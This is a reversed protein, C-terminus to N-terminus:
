RPPNADTGVRRAEALLNVVRSELAMLEARIEVLQLRDHAALQYVTEAGPGTMTLLEICARDLMRDVSQM